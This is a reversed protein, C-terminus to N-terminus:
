IFRTIKHESIRARIIQDESLREGAKVVLLFNQLVTVLVLLFKSTYISLLLICPM